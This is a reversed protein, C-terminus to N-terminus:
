HIPTEAAVHGRDSPATGNNPRRSEVRFVTIRRQMATVPCRGRTSATVRHRSRALTWCAVVERHMSRRCCSLLANRLFKQCLLVRSRPAMTKEYDSKAAYPWRLMVRGRRRLIALKRVSVIFIILSFTFTGCLPRKCNMMMTTTPTTMMMTM